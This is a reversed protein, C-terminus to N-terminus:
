QKSLQGYETGDRYEQSKVVPVQSPFVLNLKESHSLLCHPLSVVFLFTFKCIACRKKYYCRVMILQMGFDQILIDYSPM